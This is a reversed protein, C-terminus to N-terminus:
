RYSGKRGKGNRGGRSGRGKEGGRGKVDGGREEARGEWGMGAGYIWCQLSEWSPGTPVRAVFENKAYKAGIYFRM